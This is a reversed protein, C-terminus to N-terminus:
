NRSLTTRGRQTLLELDDDDFEEQDENDDDNDTDDGLEDPEYDVDDVEEQDENDDDDDDTDDGLEDSEYDFVYSWYTSRHDDDEDETFLIDGEDRPEINITLETFSPDNAVLKDCLAQIHPKMM